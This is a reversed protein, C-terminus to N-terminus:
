NKDLAGEKKINTKKKAAKGYRGLGGRLRPDLIDRLADGLMNIGYVVVSLALGPWLVMWPAMFMFSRGSGSLMGGWTPAPPPIGFGLFSLTAEILIMQGMSITFIIILPAMINPIIHKVFTRWPPSGIAIAAHFYTNEKIGIVASRVVRSQTIGGQIGLVFIVPLLGPGLMSMVTLMIFIPPFCMFADVFRQVVTDTKGGLFGSIGGIFIGTLVSLASGALGVIMSIRAGFIVRSLLDRGLNDTGLLFQSSPPSVIHALHLEAPDYPAIVEAFIGIFFMLLVIIGGVTGLPKTKVLSVLLDVFLSHKKQGRIAEVTLTVEM